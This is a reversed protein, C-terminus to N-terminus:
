VSERSEKANGGKPGEQIQSQNLNTKEEDRLEHSRLSKSFPKPAKRILPDRKGRNKDQNM